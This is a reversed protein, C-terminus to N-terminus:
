KTFLVKGFIVNAGECVFFLFMQENTVVYNLQSFFSIRNSPIAVMSM